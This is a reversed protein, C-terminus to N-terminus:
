GPPPDYILDDPSGPPPDYDLEGPVFPKAQPGGCGALIVAAVGVCLPVWFNKM